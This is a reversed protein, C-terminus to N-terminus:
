VTNSDVRMQGLGSAEEYALENDILSPRQPKVAVSELWDPATDCWKFIYVEHLIYICSGVFRYM